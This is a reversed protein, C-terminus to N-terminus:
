EDIDGYYCVNSSYNKHKTLSLAHVAQEFLSKSNLAGEYTSSVGLLVDVEAKVSGYNIEMNLFKPNKTSGTRLIQMKQPDLITVAFVLGSIRFIESSESMFTNKLKKVYESILMDGIERGM